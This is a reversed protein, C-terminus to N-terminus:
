EGFAYADMALIGLATGEHLLKAHLPIGAAGLAIFLPLFHEPTPHNERAYPASKQWDVLGAIDSEAVRDSVWQSFLTVWSPTKSHHGHFAEGLNHTLNGTGIILINEKRLSSLAQGIQYHRQANREPQISLEVVPIDAHPYMLLLPNWAGHDLGRELDIDVQIDAAALLSQVRNAITRLTYYDVHASKRRATRIPPSTRNPM